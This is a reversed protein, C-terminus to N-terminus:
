PNMKGERPSLYKPASPKRDDLEHGNKEPEMAKRVVNKIYNAKVINVSSGKFRDNRLYSLM